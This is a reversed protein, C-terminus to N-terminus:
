LETHEPMEDDPGDASAEGEKSGGEAEQQQEGAEEQQQQEEGVAEGGVEGEQQQEKEKEEVKAKADKDGAAKDAPEGATANEAKPAPKPKPKRKRDLKNVLAEVGEFKGVVDEATFAPEETDKLELQKAMKENFWKEFDRVKAWVNEAEKETIWPKIEPWSNMTKHILDLSTRTVEMVKPRLELEKRRKVMGKGVNKLETLKSRYQEPKAQEGDGYLWDEADMLAERFTSREEETSVTQLLEDSELEDRTKIIYAELDNKAKATEQKLRETRLLTSMNVTAATLFDGEAVKYRLGPGTVNLSVQFTKKKPVQITKFVTKKVPPETKNTANEADGAAAAPEADGNEKEAKDKKWSWRSGKKEKGKEEASGESKDADGSAEKADKATEGDAETSNTEVPVEIVKDELVEQEVYCDASNVHILGSYDAEFRLAFLGSHNYRAIAEKIGSITFEALLPEGRVSSPLGHPVSENYQLTFSFGDQTLNNYKIARKIPLKKGAPLLNKVVPGKAHAGEGDEEGAGAASPPELDDSIFSVGYTAVDTMGFKRLRFSTSLNAAFLGAGLVIAEDADLHRDLTRGQLAETLAAQLRPTRSGGGLLEVAEVDTPALKNRALLKTLPAAARTWFDGALEEFKERTISSQFDKGEHMEEVSFPAATNASLMEKTRRVQRKLKAMAKPHPRIDLKFKEEFQKAFHEALVMDLNNSGLSTDWEVDLIEFQNIPKDKGAEKTTYTSYKVLAVETSGSGMDYLIIKQDGKTFDREIGFQLAAASHANILALVNLGGLSAASLMAQREPIGLWAPVAIVADRVITGAGAHAETIQKAYHFIGGVLEEVTYSTTSNVKLAILKSLPHREIKYPLYHDSLLQRVYPDDPDRGLFDRSRSFVLDPYRITFSFAEEGLLRDEGIM